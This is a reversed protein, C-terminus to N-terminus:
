RVGGIGKRLNNVSTNLLSAAKSISILEESLARIVLQEFLKAKEDLKYDGPENKQGYTKSMYIMWRQYYSQSIIEMQLLRYVIARISIGYYEKISILEKIDIYSRHAGGIMEIVKNDPILFTSSFRHCLKEILKKENEVSDDFKLLLHALEHIITFRIREIPKLRTNVIVVPIRSSALFSVGDIDDSEDILYVKVGNMELMEVINQIPSNGLEWYDRLINAAKVVDQDNKIILKKIPNKFAPEIGLINEIELFREVYDRAKEIISEEIKNSLSAKKRFSINDLVITKKKLFYEPKVNLSKSLAILVESTPKMLGQEYKNLAQKTVLNGIQDSLEQLSIGAMKRALRLRVGLINKEASDM